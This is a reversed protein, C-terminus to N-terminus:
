KKIRDNEYEIKSEITGDRRYTIETGHRQNNKFPVVTRKKQSGYFLAVQEGSGKNFHGYGVKVGDAEFYEWNGHYFGKLYQGRVKIQGNPHFEAYAGDITDNVFNATMAKRGDSYYTTSPGQKKGEAYMISELLKGEVSFREYKGDPKNDRYNMVVEKNGNAFYYTAPGNKQDNKLTIESKITGDPYYERSTKTCSALVWLVLM